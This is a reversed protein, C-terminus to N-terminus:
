SAVYCHNRDRVTRIWEVLQIKGQEVLLAIAIGLKEEDSYGKKVEVDVTLRKSKGQNRDPPHSNRTQGAWCNSVKPGGQTVSGKGEPEFSSFQKWQGRNKPYFAQENM